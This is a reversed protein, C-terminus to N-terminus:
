LFLVETFNCGADMQLLLFPIGAAAFAKRSLYVLTNFDKVGSFHM